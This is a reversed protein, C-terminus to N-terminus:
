HQKSKSRSTKIRISSRGWSSSTHCCGQVFKSDRLFSSGPYVTCYDTIGMRLLLLIPPFPNISPPVPDIHLPEPQYIITSPWIGSGLAHRVQDTVFNVKILSRCNMFSWRQSNSHPQCVASVTKNAKWVAAWELILWLIKGLILIQCSKYEILNCDLFFIRIMFNAPIKCFLSPLETFKTYLPSWGSFKENTQSQSLILKDWSNILYHLNLSFLNKSKFITGSIWVQWTTTGWFRLSLSRWAECVLWLQTAFTSSPGTKGWTNFVSKVKNTIKVWQLLNLVDLNENIHSLQFPDVTELM